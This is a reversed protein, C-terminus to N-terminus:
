PEFGAYGFVTEAAMEVVFHPQREFWGEYCTYLMQRQIEEKNLALRHLTVKFHKMAETSHWSVCMLKLELHVVELDPLHGKLPQENEVLM